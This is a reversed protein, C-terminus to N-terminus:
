RKGNKKHILDKQKSNSVKESDLKRQGAALGWKVKAGNKGAESQKISREKQKIMEAELWPHVWNGEDNQLFCRKIKKGFLM